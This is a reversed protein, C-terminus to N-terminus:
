ETKEIAFYPYIRQWGNEDIARIGNSFVTQVIATDGVWIKGMAHKFGQEKRYWTKVVVIKDGTTLNNEKLWEAQQEEYSKFKM